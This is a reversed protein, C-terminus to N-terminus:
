TVAPEIVGQVHHGHDLDAPEAGPLGAVPTLRGLANAAALLRSGSRPNRATAARRPRTSARSARCTSLARALPQDQCSMAPRSPTVLCATWWFCPGRLRDPGPLHGRHHSEGLLGADHGMEGALLGLAAVLVVEAGLVQEEAQEDPVVVRRGPHQARMTQVRLGDPGPDVPQDGLADQGPGLGAVGLQQGGQADVQVRDHGPELLAEAPLGVVVSGLMHPQPRDLGEGRGPRRSM